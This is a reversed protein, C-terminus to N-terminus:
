FVLSRFGFVLIVWVRLVLGLGQSSVFTLPIMNKWKSCSLYNTKEYLNLYKTSLFSSRKDVHLVRSGALSSHHTQIVAVEKAILETNAETLMVKQLYTMVM